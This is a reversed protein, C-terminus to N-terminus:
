AMRSVLAFGRVAGEVREEAERALIGVGLIWVWPSWEGAAGTWDLAAGPPAALGRPGQATELVVRVPASRQLADEVEAVRLVPAGAVSPRVAVSEEALLAGFKRALSEVHPRLRESGEALVLLATRDERRARDLFDRLSRVDGPSVVAVAVGASSLFAHDSTGGARFAGAQLRRLLGEPTKRKLVEARLGGAGLLVALGNGAALAAGGGTDLLLSRGAEAVAPSLAQAAALPGSAGSPSPAGTSGNGGGPGRRPHRSDYLNRRKEDSLVAHAAEAEELAGGDSGAQARAARFSEEVDAPSAERGLGLIAYPDFSGFRANYALIDSVDLIEESPEGAKRRVFAAEEETSASSPPEWRFGDGGATRHGPLLRADPPLAALAALSRHLDGADGQDVRAGPWTDGTFVALVRGTAADVLRYTVADPTHGPAPSAEVRLAGLGFVKGRSAAEDAARASAGEGIVVKPVGGYVSRLASAGQRHDAHTHTQLIAEPEAGHELLVDLIRGLSKLPPDVLLARKGVILVYSFEGGPGHLQWLRAGGPLSAGDWEWLDRGSSAECLPYNLDYPALSIGRRRLAEKVASGAACISGNHLTEVFFRDATRNEMARAALGALRVAFDLGGRPLEPRIWLDLSGERPHSHSGEEPQAHDTFRVRIRRVQASSSLSSLLAKGAPLELDKRVAQALDPHSGDIDVSVPAPPALEDKRAAIGRLTEVLDDVDRKTTYVGFSARVAGWDNIGQRSLLASVYIHQCFCGNRVSRGRAALAAALQANPVGRLAFVIVGERSAASGPDAPGILVLGPIRGLERLAHETLAEEERRVEDMGIRRLLRFTFALAALGAVAGRDEALLSKRGALRQHLASDKRSVLGGVGWPNFVKHGSFVLHDVGAAEVDIPRHAIAQAADVLLEAGHRHAIDAVRRVYEPGRTLVGTGAVNSAGTIMVLRVREAGHAKRDNYEALVRELEAPDVFGDDDVALPVRKRGDVQPTVSLATHEAGSTVIVPTEGREAAGASAAQAAIHVAESTNQAPIFDHTVPSAGVFRLIDEEALGLAASREKEPLRLAKLFAGAILDNTLSSAATDFFLHEVVGGDAGVVDQRNGLFGDRFRELLAPPALSELGADPRVARNATLGSEANLVAARRADAGGRFLLEAFARNLVSAPTGPEYLDHSLRSAFQVGDETVKDV